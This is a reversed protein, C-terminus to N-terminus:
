GRAQSPPRFRAKRYSLEGYVPDVLSQGTTNIFGWQNGVKVSALGEQFQNAGDFQPRILIEGTTLNKYGWQGGIKELFPVLEADQSVSVLGILFLCSVLLYRYFKVPLGWM